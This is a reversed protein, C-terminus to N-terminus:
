IHPTGTQRVRNAALNAMAQLEAERTTRMGMLTAFSDRGELWVEDLFRISWTSCRKSCNALKRRCCSLTRAKSIWYRVPSVRSLALVCSRLGTMDFVNELFEAAQQSVETM